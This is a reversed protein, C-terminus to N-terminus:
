AIIDPLLSDEIQTIQDKLHLKRKKLRSLQLLDAAGSDMLALIAADLDRHEEILKALKARLAQEEEDTMNQAKQQAGNDRKGPSFEGGIRAGFAQYESRFNQTLIPTVSARSYNLKVM